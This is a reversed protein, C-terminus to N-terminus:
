KKVAVAEINGFPFTLQANGLGCRSLLGNVRSRWPDRLGNQALHALSYTSLSRLRKVPKLGSAAIMRDLTAPTYYTIHQINYALFADGSLKALLSEINHTAVLVAGGPRLHRRVDRLLELPDMVHDIVHIVTILDFHNEPFSDAAYNGHTVSFGQAAAARSADLSPDIGEARLGLRQAARLLHGCGCGIDLLRGSSIGSHRMLRRVYRLMNVLIARDSTSSTCASADAADYLKQVAEESFVPSSYVFGCELCENIRYHGGDESFYDFARDLDGFREKIKTRARSSKCLPCPIDRLAARDPMAGSTPAGHDPSSPANPHEPAVM